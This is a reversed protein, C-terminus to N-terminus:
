KLTWRSPWLRSRLRVCNLSTSDMSCCSAAMFLSMSDRQFSFEARRRHPKMPLRMQEQLEHLCGREVAGCRARGQLARIM